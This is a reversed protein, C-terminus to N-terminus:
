GGLQHQVDDVFVSSYANVERTLGFGSACGAIRYRSTRREDRNETKGAYPFIRAVPRDGDVVEVVEGTAVLDLCHSALSSMAGLQVVTVGAADVAVKGGDGEQLSQIQAVMKRRRMVLIPDGSDALQLYHRAAARLQGVGISRTDSLM